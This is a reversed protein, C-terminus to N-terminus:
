KGLERSRDAAARVAHKLLKPFGSSEEMLVALAAATTGGPSTVMHLMNRMAAAHRPEIVQVGQVKDKVKLMTVPMIDGDRALQHLVTSM